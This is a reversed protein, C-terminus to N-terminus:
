SNEIRPVLEGDTLDVRIRTRHDGDEWRIEVRTAEHHDVSMTYGDATTTAVLVLAGGHVRVTLSGGDGTYTVPAHDPTTTAPPHPQTTAPATTVPPGGPSHGSSSGTTTATAGGQDGAGVMTDSPATVATNDPTETPMTDAVTAEPETAFTVDVTEAPVSGAPDVHTGGHRGLASAGLSLVLVSAATGAAIRRRVHIRRVRGRVSAYAVDVDPTPGTAFLRRLEGDLPDPSFENM